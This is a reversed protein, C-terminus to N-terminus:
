WATWGGDVIFNQGTIFDSSKACLLVFIGKLDEPKGIRNLPTKQKLREIFAQNQQVAESPFAGPTVTNVQINYKGLYAAYYKTLQIIGAKAAGYHPPNLFPNNEYVRFDPAVVGYMSAVNVIKGGKEKMYPIAERICKFLSGLTGEMSVNWEEDTMTEPNQGKLYFANNILGDICGFRTKINLFATQISTTSAVDCPEFHINAQHLFQQQFKEISRGLVVVTAGAQALGQSVASGLYGYGGTILIVKGELSLFDM